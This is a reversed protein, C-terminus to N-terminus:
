VHLKNQDSIIGGLAYPLGCNAYSVFPGKELVTIQASEDLRRLRAACSMGGAVGGVVLVKKGRLTSLMTLSTNTRLRQPQRVNAHWRIAASHAKLDFANYLVPLSRPTVLASRNELELSPPTDNDCWKEVYMDRFYCGRPAVVTAVSRGACDSCSTDHVCDDSARSTDSSRPLIFDSKEVRKSNLLYLRFCRFCRLMRRTHLSTHISASSYIFPFM